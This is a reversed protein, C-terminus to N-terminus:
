AHADHWTTRVANEYANCVTEGDGDMRIRGGEMWLVREFDRVHDLVHTSVIIQQAITSIDAALALQGRLDLSAYPEDLLLVKPQALLLALWCVWQRQGQSLSSVARTAWNALGREVLVQSVAELTEKKSGGHACRWSLALEEQVTPFIIQDDPNQFMLGIARNPQGMNPQGDFLIQGSHPTELGCLMRLFSTKGAGNEGILGIRLEKIELDFNEFVRTTGRNLCVQELQWIPAPAAESVNPPTIPLPRNFPVTKEFVLDLRSTQLIERTQASSSIM